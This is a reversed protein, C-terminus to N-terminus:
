RLTEGRALRALMERAVGADAHFEEVHRGVYEGATYGLLAADAPNAGLIRGDAGLWHLGVVAHEFFDFVEAATTQLPRGRSPAAAGYRISALLHNGVAHLRRARVTVRGHSPPRAPRRARGAGAPRVAERPLGPVRRALCAHSRPQERLRDRRGSA